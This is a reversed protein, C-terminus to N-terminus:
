KEFLAVAAAPRSTPFRRTDFLWTLRVRWDFTDRRRAANVLGDLDERWRSQIELQIRRKPRWHYRVVFTEENARYVPSILWGPDTRGYNVGISHGARFDMWSAELHWAWGDVDGGTGTGVGRESPTQPAYGLEGSVILSANEPDVPWRAAFRGAVNWYDDVPGDVDGEALLASPMYSVDIARQTILGWPKRNELSYFYSVRSDDDDFDLPARALTSSGDSNNYQAIAYSNWGNAAQYRVALGDTWNVSVNTSTLRTLSSVFVGGRTVARTQMRGLGVDWRDRQFLDMYLEDLVIDGQDINTTNAPTRSVDVNPDCDSDTCVTALRAKLRIHDTFGVNVGYRVRFAFEDTNDSTGDRQDVDTAFYGSRVDGDFTARGTQSYAYELSGETDISLPDDADLYEPAYEGAFAVGALCTAFVAM